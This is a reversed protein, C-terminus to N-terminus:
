LLDSIQVIKIGHFSSPINNKEIRYEKVVVIKAGIFMGICLTILIISLIIGLLKSIKIFRKKNEEKIIKDQIKKNKELRKIM